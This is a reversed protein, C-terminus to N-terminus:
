ASGQPIGSSARQYVSVFAQEEAAHVESAITLVRSNHSFQPHKQMMEILCSVCKRHQNTKFYHELLRLRGTMAIQRNGLTGRPQENQEIIRKYQEEMQPPMKGGPPLLADLADMDPIDHRAQDPIALSHPIQTSM